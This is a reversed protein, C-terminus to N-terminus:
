QRLAPADRGSQYCALFKAMLSGGIRSGFILAGLFTGLTNTMLDTTGSARTPLWVQTVEITLSVAFGAMVTAIVARKLPRGRSWYACFFFGLPIFGAVNVLIDKWYGWSRRYEKWFPELFPQRALAFRETIYLDIGSPVANHIVNGARENFAYIAIARPNGDLLPPRAQMTWVEYHALVEPATLEGDYIAIGRLQGRWHEAVLPSTGIALEGVFDQALPFKPFTSSLVGDVYISTVIPSSTVTIFRLQPERFVGAIGIVSTSPPPDQLVHRLILFSDHYQELSLQRPDEATSFSLFDANDSAPGPQVWVEVSRSADQPSAPAQFVGSSFVSGYNGFSLGNANDLWTVANRRPWFPWLGAVLIGLLVLLCVAGLPGSEEVSRLRDM